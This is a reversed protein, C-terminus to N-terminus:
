WEARRNDNAAHFKLRQKKKRTLFFCSECDAENANRQFVAINAEFGSGCASFTKWVESTVEFSLWSEPSPFGRLSKFSKDITGEFKNNPPLEGVIREVPFPDAGVQVQASSLPALASFLLLLLM